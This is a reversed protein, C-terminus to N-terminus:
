PMRERVRLAHFLLLPLAILGAVWHIISVRNRLLEDSLYYLGLATAALMLLMAVFAVGSKYNRRTNWGLAMHVPLMTGGVILFGYAVIGHVILVIHEAPHHEPGFEGAVQVFNDLLLWAVGTAVLLGFSVYVSWEQWSPLKGPRRRTM